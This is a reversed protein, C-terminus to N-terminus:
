GVKDAEAVLAPLLLGAAVQCGLLPGVWDEQSGPLKSGCTVLAKQELSEIGQCYQNIALRVKQVGLALLQEHGRQCLIDGVSFEGRTPNATHAM